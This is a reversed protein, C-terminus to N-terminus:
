NQKESVYMAEYGRHTVWMPVKWLFLTYVDSLGKLSQNIFAKVSM